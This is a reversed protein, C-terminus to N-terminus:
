MLKLFPFNAVVVKLTFHMQLNNPIIQFSIKRNVEKKRGGEKGKERGEKNGEEGGRNREKKNIVKRNCHHFLGTM